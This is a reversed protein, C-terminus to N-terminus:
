ETPRRFIYLDRTTNIMEGEKKAKAVDHGSIANRLATFPYPCQIRNSDAFGAERFFRWYESTLITGSTQYNRDIFDSVLLVVTECNTEYCDKALKAMFSLFETRQLSSVSESVYDPQKKQFYPPDLFILSCDKAEEPFGNQVDHKVIDHRVPNIDYALCKRNMLKCVDITTGSGAMPDVVLDEEETWYHLVNRVLEGNCHGPYQPDGFVRSKQQFFWTTEIKPKFDLAEKVFQRTWEVSKGVALKAVRRQLNTNEILVSNNIILGQSGSLQGSDVMDALWVPFDLYPINNAVFSQWKIKEQKFVGVMINHYTRDMTNEKTQTSPKQLNSLRRLIRKTEDESDVTFRFQLEKFISRTYRTPEQQLRNSNRRRSFAIKDADSNFKLKSINKPERELQQYAALSHGGDIVKGTEDIVIELEQGSLIQKKLLEIHDEDKFDVNINFPSLEM